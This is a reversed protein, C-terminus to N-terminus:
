AAAEAVDGDNPQEPNNLISPFVGFGAGHMIFEKLRITNNNITEYRQLMCFSGGEYECSVQVANVRDLGLYPIFGGDVSVGSLDAVIYVCTANVQQAISRLENALAVNDTIIQHELPYSFAEDNENMFIVGAKFNKKRKKLNVARRFLRTAYAKKDM